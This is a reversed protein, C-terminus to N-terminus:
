DGYIKLSDDYEIWASISGDNIDKQMRKKVIKKSKIGNKEWYSYYLYDGKLYIFGGYHQNSPDQLDFLPAAIRSFFIKDEEKAKKKRTELEELIEEVTIDDCNLFVAEFKRPINDLASLIAKKCDPCYDRDNYPLYYHGGSVYYVYVSQCHKCRRPAEITM